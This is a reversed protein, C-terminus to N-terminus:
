CSAGNLVSQTASCWACCGCPSRHALDAMCGAPLVEQLWLEETIYLGHLRCFSCVEGAGEHIYARIRTSTHETHFVRGQASCTVACCVQQAQLTDRAEQLAAERGQLDEKDAALQTRAAELDAARQEAEAARTSAARCNPCCLVTSVSMRHM